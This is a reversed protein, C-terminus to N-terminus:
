LDTTSTRRASRRREVRPDVPLQLSIAKKCQSSSGCKQFISGVRMYRTADTERCRYAVASHKPTTNTTERNPFSICEISVNSYEDMHYNTADFQLLTWNSHKHTHTHTHTHRHRHTDPLVLLTRFTFTRESSMWSSFSGAM